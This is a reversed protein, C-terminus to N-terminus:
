VLESSEFVFFNYFIIILVNRTNRKVIDMNQINNHTKDIDKLLGREFKIMKRQKGNSIETIEFAYKIPDKYAM